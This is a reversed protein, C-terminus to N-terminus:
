VAASRTLRNSKGVRLSLVSARLHEYPMTYQLAASPMAVVCDLTGAMLGYLVSLRERDHEHSATVPYMIFDRYPYAKSAFGAEGFLAALRRCEKENEALVLLPAGHKEKCERLIEQAAADLAGGSLGNAAIPLTKKANMQESFVSLLHLFERDLRIASSVNAAKM